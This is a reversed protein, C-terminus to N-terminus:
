YERIDRLKGADILGKMANTVVAIGQEKLAAVPNTGGIAVVGFYEPDVAVGLAPTNPLGVDLVGQFSSGSLEDLVSGVMSEAEMHCERLNALITGSGTRMVSNISTVEECALVQLPDITTYEYLIMHTFRKPVRRVIEVAGGGIPVLPIGKRLLLGDLTSSCVTIVGKWGKDLSYGFEQDGREYFRILSSAGIGSRYADKFIRIVAEYDDSPFLALNYVLNGTNSRPDFTVQIAYEEIRHKVFKLPHMYLIM